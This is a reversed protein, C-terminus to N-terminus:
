KNNSNDNDVGNYKKNLDKIMDGLDSNVIIIDNDSLKFERILKKLSALKLILHRKEVVM